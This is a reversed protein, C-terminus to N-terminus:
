SDRAVPTGTLAFRADSPIRRLARATRSLPNKITQAEDAAVLGWRQEALVAVERRAVGYTALVVETRNGYLGTTEYVLPAM